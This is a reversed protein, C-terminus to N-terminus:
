SDSMVGTPPFCIVSETPNSSCVEAEAGSVAEVFVKRAPVSTRQSLPSLVIYTKSVSPCFFVKVLAVVEDAALFSNVPFIESFESILLTIHVPSCFFSSQVNSFPMKLPEVSLTTFGCLILLPLEKACFALIATIFGPSSTRRLTKPYILYVIGVTPVAVSAFPSYLRLLM